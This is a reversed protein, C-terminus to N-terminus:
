RDAAGPSRSSKSGAPASVLKSMRPGGSSGVSIVVPLLLVIALLVALATNTRNMM